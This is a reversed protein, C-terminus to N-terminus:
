RNSDSCSMKGIEVVFLLEKMDVGGIGDDDGDHDTFDDDGDDDDHDIGDDEDDDHDIVDDM